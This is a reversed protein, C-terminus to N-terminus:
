IEEIKNGLRITLFTEIFDFINQFYNSTRNFDINIGFSFNNQEVFWIACKYRCCFYDCRILYLLNNIGIQFEILKDEEKLFCNYVRVDNSM